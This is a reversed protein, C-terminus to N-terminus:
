VERAAMDSASWHLFDHAEADGAQRSFVEIMQEGHGIGFEGRLTRHPSFRRAGDGAADAQGVRRGALVYDEGVVLM